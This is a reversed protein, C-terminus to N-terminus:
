EVMIGRERLPKIVDNAIAQEGFKRYDHDSLWGMTASHVDSRNAVLERYMRISDMAAEALYDRQKDTLLQNAWDLFIWGFSAHSAEDKAIRHLVPGILPLQASLRATTQAMPLAFAEAVCFVRVVLEAARVLPPLKMPPKFGILDRPQHWLPDNGGLEALVRAGMEAHNLEDSAFQSAVATLDLPVRAAILTETVATMGAASRYEIYTIRTWVAKAEQHLESPLKAEALAGWPMDLKARQQNYRREITGGLMSLEFLAPKTHHSM